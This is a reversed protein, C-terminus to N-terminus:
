AATERQMRHLCERLADRWPRPTIGFDNLKTLDLVSWSPRAAPRPQASTSCGVVRCPLGSMEVIARAFEYRSCEGDNAVHIMGRAGRELVALVVGALDPAYTPRGFQDDVVKLENQAGAASHITRVFNRSHPAFLWSTRVILHECGSELIQREGELKSLGYVNAPATPDDERWPRRGRGSFVYDTSIHVLMAGSDAACRAINGAGDGNVRMAEDRKVEADDVNTFSACNIIVGPQHEGIAESVAQPNAIDARARGALGAAHIGREACAALLERGLMGSAGFILISDRTMM